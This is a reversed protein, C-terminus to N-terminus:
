KAEIPLPRAASTKEVFLLADYARTPEIATLMAHESAVTIGAERALRPVGMWKGAAGDKPLARLDFVAFPLKARSLAAELTESPAPGVHMEHPLAAVKADSDSGILFSGEGFASGVIVDGGGVKERLYSGMRRYSPDRADRVSADHAWVIARVGPSQELTWAVNDAMCRERVSTGEVSKGARMMEEAESLIVTCRRAIAWDSAASQKLYMEKSDELLAAVDELAARSADRMEPGLSEYRAHGSADAQRFGALVLGVREASEEDVKLLYDHMKKYAVSTYQMDFGAVRVKTAHKADANWRRLWQVFELAEDTSWTPSRLAALAEKPDGVGRLVYEDVALTEPWNAEIAVIGFGLEAVLYEAIRREARFLERTGYAAEGISVIRADGALKKLAVLDDFASTPEGSKWAIAHQALEAVVADPAALDPTEAAHGAVARAGHLPTLAAAVVAILRVARMRRVM